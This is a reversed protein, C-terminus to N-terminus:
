KKRRENRTTGYEFGGSGVGAGKAPKVGFKQGVGSPAELLVRTLFDVTVPEPNEPRNAPVCYLLREILSYNVGLDVAINMLLVAYLIIRLPKALFGLGALVSYVVRVQFAIDTHSFSAFYATHAVSALVCFACADALLGVVMLAGIVLWLFWSVPKGFLVPAKPSPLFSLASGSSQQRSASKAALRQRM